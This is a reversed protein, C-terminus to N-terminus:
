TAGVCGGAMVDTEGFAPGADPPLWTVMLPELKEPAIPTFNPVREVGPRLMTLSLWIM